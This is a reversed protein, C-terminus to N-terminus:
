GKRHGGPALKHDIRSCSLLVRAGEIDNRSVGEIAIARLIRSSLCDIRRREAHWSCPRKTISRAVEYAPKAGCLRVKSNPSVNGQMVRERESKAGLCEVDEIVRVESVDIRGVRVNREPLRGLHQVRTQCCNGGLILLAPSCRPTEGEPQHELREWM